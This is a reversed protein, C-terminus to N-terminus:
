AGPSLGNPGGAGTDRRVNSTDRTPTGNRSSAPCTTCSRSFPGYRPQSREGTAARHGPGIDPAGCSISAMLVTMLILMAALYRM